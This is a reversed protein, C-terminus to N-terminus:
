AYMCPEVHAEALTIASRFLTCLLSSVTYMLSTVQEKGQELLAHQGLAEAEYDTLRGELASLAEQLSNCKAQLATEARCARANEIRLQLLRDSQADTAQDAQTEQM